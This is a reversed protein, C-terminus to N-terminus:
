VVSFDDFHVHSRKRTSNQNAPKTSNELVHGQYNNQNISNHIPPDFLVINAPTAIEHAEIVQVEHVYDNHNIAANSPGGFIIDIQM